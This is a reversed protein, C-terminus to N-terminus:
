ITLLLRHRSYLTLYILLDGTGTSIRTRHVKLRRPRLAAVKRSEEVRGGDRERLNFQQM